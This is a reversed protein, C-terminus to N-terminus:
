RILDDIFNNIFDGFEKTKDFMDHIECSVIYMFDDQNIEDIDFSEAIIFLKLFYFRLFDYEDCVRCYYHRLRQYEDYEAATIKMYENM